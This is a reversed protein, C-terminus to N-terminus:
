MHLWQPLSWSGLSFDGNEVLHLWSSAVSVFVAGKLLDPVVMPIFGKSLSDSFSLLWLCAGLSSSMFLGMLVCEQSLCNTVLYMLQGLFLSVLCLPPERFSSMVDYSFIM